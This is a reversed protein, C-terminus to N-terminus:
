RAYDKQTVIIAIVWPQKGGFVRKEKGVLLRLPVFKMDQLNHKLEWDAAKDMSEIIERGGNM